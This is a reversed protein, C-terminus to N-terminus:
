VEQMGYPLGAKKRLWSMRVTNKEYNKCAILVWAHELLNERGEENMQELATSLTAIAQTIDIPTSHGGKPATANMIMEGKDKQLPGPIILTGPGQHTRHAEQM